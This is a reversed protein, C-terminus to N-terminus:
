MPHQQEAGKCNSSSVTPRLAGVYSPNSRPGPLRNPTGTTRERAPPTGNSIPLNQSPEAPFFAFDRSQTPTIPSRLSRNRLLISCFASRHLSKGLVAFGGDTPEIGVPAEGLM